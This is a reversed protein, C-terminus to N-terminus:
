DKLFSDALVQEELATTDMAGRLPLQIFFATGKGLDSRAWIKGRHSEVIKRCVALGLGTGQYDDNSKHLRSFLGFIKEEYEKEFGIGNDRIEFTAM